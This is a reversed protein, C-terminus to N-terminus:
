LLRVPIYFVKISPLPTFALLFLLFFMRLSSVDEGRVHKNDESGREQKGGGSREKWKRKHWKEPFRLLLYCLKLLPQLLCTVPLHCGVNVEGTDDHLYHTHTHTPPSTVLGLWMITVHHKKVTAGVWPQSLQQLAHCMQVYQSNGSTSAWVYMSCVYIYSCWLTFMCMYIYSGLTHARMTM